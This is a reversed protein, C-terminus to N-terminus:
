QATMALEGHRAAAHAGALFEQTTMSLEAGRPHTAQAQCLLGSPLNSLLPGIACSVNRRTVLSADRM